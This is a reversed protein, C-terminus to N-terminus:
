VAISGIKLAVVSGLIGPSQCEIRELVEFPKAREDQRDNRIKEAAKDDAPGFRHREIRVIQAILAPAFSEDGDGSRRCIDTERKEEPQKQAEARERCGIRSEHCDDPRNNKYVQNQRCEIEHRNRWQVTGFDNKRKKRVSQSIDARKKFAVAKENQNEKNKEEPLEHQRNNRMLESPNSSHAQLIFGMRLHARYM